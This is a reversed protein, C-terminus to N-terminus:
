DESSQFIKKIREWYTKGVDVIENAQANKIIEVKTGKVLMERVKAYDTHSAGLAHAAKSFAKNDMLGSCANEFLYIRRLLNLYVRPTCDIEWYFGTENYGTAAPKHMALLFLRLRKETQQAQGRPTTIIARLIM